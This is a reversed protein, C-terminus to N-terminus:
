SLLRALTDITTEPLSKPMAVEFEIILDGVTEDRRIGLGKLVKRSGPSILNGRENNLQFKQGDLHRLQFSFGCLAEKLTIPRTYILDLADRQFNSDKSVEIFVKVDGVARGVVNGKASLVVAENNDIGRTIEAYLTESEDRSGYADHVTRTVELPIKCGTYAQQLTITVKRVITKPQRLSSPDAPAHMGFLQEPSSMGMHFVRVGDGAIGDGFLGALDGTAVARLFEDAPQMNGGHPVHMHLPVGRPMRMQVGHMGPPMQMPMPMSGHHSGCSQAEFAKRGEETGITEWAKQIRLFETTASPNDKNMDPHHNFSMRRYAKKVVAPDQATEERTIGLVKYPDDM